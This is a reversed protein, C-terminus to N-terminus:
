THTSDTLFIKIWCYLVGSSSSLKRNPSFAITIYGRSRKFPTWKFSWVFCIYKVFHLTTFVRFHVKKLSPFRKAKDCFDSYVSRELNSRAYWSLGHADGEPKRGEREGDGEKQHAEWRCKYMLSIKTMMTRQTKVGLSQKIERKMSTKVIQPCSLSISISVLGILFKRSCAKIIM